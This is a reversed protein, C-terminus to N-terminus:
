GRTLRTRRAEVLKCGAGLGPRLAGGGTLCGVGARNVCCVGRNRRPRTPRRVRVDGGRDCHTAPRAGPHDAQQGVAHIHCLLVVEPQSNIPCRFTVRVTAPEDCFIISSCHQCCGTIAECIPADDLDVDALEDASATGSYESM